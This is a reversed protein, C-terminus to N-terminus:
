GMWSIVRGDCLISADESETGRLEWDISGTQSVFSVTDGVNSNRWSGDRRAEQDASLLRTNNYAMILVQQDRNMANELPLASQAGLRDNSEQGVLLDWNQM